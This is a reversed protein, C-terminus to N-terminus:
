IKIPSVLLQLYLHALNIEFHVNGMAINALDLNALDLRALALNASAVNALYM